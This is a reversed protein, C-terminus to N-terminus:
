RDWPWSRGFGRRVPPSVPPGDGERWRVEAREPTVMRWEIRVRGEPASLAGYKAANTALEHVALGFSLADGPTLRIEPGDISIREDAEGLYPALEALVIDRLPTDAWESRTLVDHTASLARIRGSLPTRGVPRGNLFVLADDEACVIEIDTVHSRLDLLFRDLKTVRAKVDAPAERVFAEADEM